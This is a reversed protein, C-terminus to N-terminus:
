APSVVTYRGTKARPVIVGDAELAKLLRHARGFMIKLRRQLLSLSAYQADQVIAKANDLMPDARGAAIAAAEDLQTFDDPESEVAHSKQGPWFRKLMERYQENDTDDEPARPALQAAIHEELSVLDRRWDIEDHGYGFRDCLSRHFNKFEAELEAVRQRLQDTETAVLAAIDVGLNRCREMSMTSSCHAMIIKQIPEANYESM